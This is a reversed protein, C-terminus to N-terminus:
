SCDFFRLPHKAPMVSDFPEFLSGIFCLIHLVARAVREPHVVALGAVAATLLVLARRPSTLQGLLVALGTRQVRQGVIPSNVRPLQQRPPPPEMLSHVPDMKPPGGLAGGAVSRKLRRDDFDNLLAYGAALCAGSTVALAAGRADLGVKAPAAVM